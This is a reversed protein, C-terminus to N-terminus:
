KSYIEVNVCIQQVWGCFSFFYVTFFEEEVKQSWVNALSARVHDILFEKSINLDYNTKRYTYKNEMLYSTIKSSEIEREMTADMSMISPEYVKISVLQTTIQRDECKLWLLYLYLFADVLYWKHIRHGLESVFMNRM